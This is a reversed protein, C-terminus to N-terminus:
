CFPDGPFNQRLFQGSYFLKFRPIILLLNIQKKKM